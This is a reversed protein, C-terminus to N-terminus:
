SIFSLIYFLSLHSKWQTLNLALIFAVEVTLNLALIFAVEVRDLLLQATRKYWPACSTRMHYVGLTNCMVAGQGKSRVDQLCAAAGHSFLFFGLNHREHANNNYNSNDNNDNDRPNVM